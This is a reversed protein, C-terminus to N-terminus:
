GGVGANKLTDSDGGARTKMGAQLVEGLRGERRLLIPAWPKRGAKRPEGAQTRDREMDSWRESVSKEEPGLLTSVVSCIM